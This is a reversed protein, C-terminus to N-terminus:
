AHRAPDLPLPEPPAAYPPSDPERVRVSTRRRRRVVRAVAETRAARTRGFRVGEVAECVDAPTLGELVESVALPRPPADPRLAFFDARLERSGKRGHLRWLERVGIQGYREAKGEDASTVEAEVVLQPQQPKLSASPRPLASRRSARCGSNTGMFVFPERSQIGSLSM